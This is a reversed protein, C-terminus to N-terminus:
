YGCHYNYVEKALTWKGSERKYIHFNNGEFAKGITFIEATGDGDIDFVDLLLEHYIGTDLDKIDGSMVDDQKVSNFESHSLSYKGDSGKEAIFFLMARSTKTLPLWYSGVFEATKDNNVDLATLNHYRLGKLNAASVKQKTMEARVLKEIETREAVTPTRRTGLSGAKVPVDTALAMVLGKLKAKASTTTVTAMNAACDSDPAASVVSVKGNAIGGFILNYTTKPTYYMKSFDKWGNEANSELEVIKGKEVMVIPELARGDNLVAFIIQKKTQALLPSLLSLVLLISIITKKM